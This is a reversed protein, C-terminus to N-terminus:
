IGAQPFNGEHEDTHLKFLVGWEKLKARCMVSKAQTLNLYYLRTVAALFM